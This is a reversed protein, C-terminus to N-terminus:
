RPHGESQIPCDLCGKPAKNVGSQDQACSQTNRDPTQENVSEGVECWGCFIIMQNVGCVVQHGGAKELAGYIRQGTM